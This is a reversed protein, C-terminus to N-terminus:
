KSGGRLVQLTMRDYWEQVHGGRLQIATHHANLGRVAYLVGFVSLDGLDPSALGSSYIFKGSQLGESEYKDLADELAKKEDTINRKAPPLHPPPPTVCRSNYMSFSVDIGCVFEV